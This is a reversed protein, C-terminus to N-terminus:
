EPIPLTDSVGLLAINGDVFMVNNALVINQENIFAGIIVIAERDSLKRDNWLSYTESIKRLKEEM